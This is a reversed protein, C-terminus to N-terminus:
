GLFIVGPLGKLEVDSTVLEKKLTQATAYIVADILYLKRKLKHEAGLLATEKDLRVIVSRSIIFQIREEGKEPTKDQAYKVKVEALCITPTYLVMESEVYRKVVEGRRSGLFYEIWASTDFVVM